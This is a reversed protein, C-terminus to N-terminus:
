NVKRVIRTKGRSNTIAAQEISTGFEYEAAVTFFSLSTVARGQYVDRNTIGPINQVTDFSNAGIGAADLIAQPTPLWARDVVRKLVARASGAGTPLTSYCQIQMQAFRQGVTGIKIEQGPRLTRSTTVITHVGTGADLLAVAVGTRANHLSTAVRVTNASDVILWYSTALALPTPLTGTTTFQVGGDANVYAHATLTLADGVVAEVIDPALVLTNRQVHDEDAAPESESDINLTIYTGEPRPKGDMFMVHADDLGSAACVFDQLAKEITTLSM